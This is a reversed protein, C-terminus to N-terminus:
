DQANSHNKTNKVFLIGGLNETLINSIKRFSPNLIKYLTPNVIILNLFSFIKYIFSSHSNVISSLSKLYLLFQSTSLNKM